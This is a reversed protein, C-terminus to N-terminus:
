GKVYDLAVVRTEGNERFDSDSIKLSPLTELSSIGMEKVFKQLPDLKIKCDPTAYHMPVVIDPEIMSIVEAAHAANLGSGGGVPILLVNVAGMAEIQQQTPLRNLDGLHAVMIKEFDFVYLTNRRTDGKAGHTQIATVFVGGIEYEGPGTLVQRVKRVAQVFNHGPADHSITVVDANLKLPAYGVVNHDFPDTVISAYRREVIRFCSHGYWTIEM